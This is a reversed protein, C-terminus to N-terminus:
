LGAHGVMLESYGFFGDMSDHSVHHMQHLHQVHPQQMQQELHSHHHSVYGVGDDHLMRMQQQHQESLDYKISSSDNMAIPPILNIDLDEPHLMGGADDSWLGAPDWGLSGEALDAAAGTGALDLEACTDALVSEATPSLDHPGPYPFAYTPTFPASCPSGSDSSAPSILHQHQNSALLMAHHHESVGSLDLTPLTPAGGMIPQGSIDFM